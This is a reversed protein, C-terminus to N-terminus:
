PFRFALFHENKVNVRNSIVSMQSRCFTDTKTEVFVFCFMKAWVLTKLKNEGTGLLANEYSVSYNKIRKRRTTRELVGSFASPFSLISRKKRCWKRFGGKEDAKRISRKTHVTPSVCHKHLRIRFVLQSISQFDLHMIM